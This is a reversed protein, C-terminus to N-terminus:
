FNNKRQACEEWLERKKAATRKNNKRHLATNKNWTKKEGQM